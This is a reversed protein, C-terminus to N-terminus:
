FGHGTVVFPAWFQTKSIGTQSNGDVGLSRFQQTTSDYERRIKLQANRLALEPRQKKVLLNNWFEGMLLQTAADDVEALTAVTNECGAALVNRNLGLIGEGPIEVGAGSFCSSLVAVRLKALDLEKIELATLIGDSSSNAGALAIGSRVDPHFGVAVNKVDETFHSDDFFGHTALAAYSAKPLSKLVNSKTAEKGVFTMQAHQPLVKTFVEGISNIEKATGPLSQFNSKPKPPAPVWSGAKRKAVYKSSTQEYDVDGVLLLSGMTQDASIKQDHSGISRRVVFRDLLFQDLEENIPLAAMPFKAIVGDPVIVLDTANKALESVPRWILSSLSKGANKSAANEGFSDRWSSILQSLKSVPGIDVVKAENSSSLIFMAMRREAVSGGMVVRFQNKERTAKSTSTEVYEFFQLVVTKNDLQETLEPITPSKLSESSSLKAELEEKRRTLKHFEELRDSLSSASNLLTAVRQNVESLEERVVTSSKSISGVRRRLEFSNWRLVAAFVKECPLEGRVVVSIWDYLSQRQMTRLQISQRDAIGNGLLAINRECIKTAEDLRKAAEAYQGNRVELSALNQLSVATKSHKEGFLERTLKLSKDFLTKAEEIRGLSALTVAVDNRADETDPHYEGLKENRVRHVERYIELAAEFDGGDLLAHALGSAAVLSRPHTEGLLDFYRQRCDRLIKAAEDPQGMRRQLDALNYETLLTQESEKGFLQTALQNAESFNVIASQYDGIDRYAGAMNNLCLVKLTMDETDRCAALATKHLKLARALDGADSYILGLNNQVGITLSHDARLLKRYIELSQAVSEIAERYRGLKYLCTGLNNFSSATDLNEIGYTAKRYRLVSKLLTLAERLEGAQELVLGLNSKSVVTDRHRRGLVKNRIAVAEELEQRALEFRATLRHLDGLNNLVLGVDRDQKGKTLYIIDLAKKYSREADQYQGVDAQASGLTNFRLGTEPHEHGYHKIQAELSLNAFRVAAKLKRAKVAAISLNNYVSITQWCDEGFLQKLQKIAQEGILIADDPRNASIKLRCATMLLRTQLVQQWQQNSLEKLAKLEQLILEEGKSSWHDAGSKKARASLMETQLEIALDFEQLKELACRQFVMSGWTVENEAGFEDLDRRLLEGGLSRAREFDKARYASQSQAILEGREIASLDDTQALASQCVLVVVFTFSVAFQM